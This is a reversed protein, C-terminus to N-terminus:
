KAGGKEKAESYLWIYDCFPSESWECGRCGTHTHCFEMHAEFAEKPTDYTEYNSQPKDLIAWARAIAEHYNVTRIEKRTEPDFIVSETAPTKKVYREAMYLLDGVVERLEAVNNKRM